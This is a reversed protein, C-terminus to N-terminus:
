GKPVANPTMTRDIAPWQQSIDPLPTQKGTMREIMISYLSIQDMRPFFDRPRERWGAKAYKRMLAEFFQQKAAGDEVVRIHGFLIVSRYALGTDCEFRGYPFVEEPEDIEFCVRAEAGICGRLHGHARTTHLWVEGNLCVYLLPVCYPYGDGGVVALRGVRGQQLMALTDAETM